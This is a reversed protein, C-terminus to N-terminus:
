KLKLLFEEIAPHPRNKSDRPREFPQIQDDLRRLVRGRIVDMSEVLQWVVEDRLEHVAVVGGLALAQEEFLGDILEHVKENTM